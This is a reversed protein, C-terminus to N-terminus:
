KERSLKYTSGPVVETSSIGTIAYSGNIYLAWYTQDINYDALIGNVREIYLGYTDEYGEILGLELLAKDLMKESTSVTFTVIHEGVEVELTFTNKGQGLTTNETYIADEWPDNNEGCSFFSFMFIAVFLIATLSKIKKM